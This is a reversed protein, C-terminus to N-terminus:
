LSFQFIFIEFAHTSNKENKKIKINNNNNNKKKPTSGVQVM